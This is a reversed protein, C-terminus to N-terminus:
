FYNALFFHIEFCKVKNICAQTQDCACTLHCQLFIIYRSWAPHRWNGTIRRQWYIKSLVTLIWICSMWIGSLKSHRVFRLGIKLHYRATRFLRSKLCLVHFLHFIIRTKPWNTNLDHISDLGILFLVVQQLSFQIM